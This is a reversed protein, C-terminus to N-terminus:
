GLVRLVFNKVRSKIRNSVSDRLVRQLEHVLTRNHLCAECLASSGLKAACERCERFDESLLDSETADPRIM